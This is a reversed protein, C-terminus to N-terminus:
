VRNQRLPYPLAQAASSGFSQFGKRLPEGQAPLLAKAREFLDRRFVNKLVPTRKHPSSKFSSEALVDYLHNMIWAAKDDTPNNADHRHFINLELLTQIPPDGVAFPGVLGARLCEAPANVYQPQALIESLLRRNGPLDCFACAQLLAALLREHEPSRGAAFSQRVVLVKEPHLPALDLSTTVCMGVGAHVAVSTWPEGVCFGDIYGLKLTPFMQAPPIAIIRVNHEPIIGGSKLWQRLLFYQSSLPFTVGFTYTKRGWDRYIKERLTRADRVGDEWLQRSIAIANGQLNLVLSSVLSCPDSDAGLNALFPLSATAQAADLEGSIVKDRIDALSTERVLEVELDYKEFLRVEHAYALPACDSTPLFGVRLPDRRKLIQLNGRSMGLGTALLVGLNKVVRFSDQLIVCDLSRCRKPGTFM